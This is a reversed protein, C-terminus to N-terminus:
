AAFKTRWEDLQKKLEPHIKISLWYLGKLVGMTPRALMDDKPAPLFFLRNEKVARLKNWPFRKSLNMNKVEYPLIVIDPNAMLLREVSFQPYAQPLNAAINDGGCATIADNLFSSKGITLLPQPWICYFVKQRSKASSTIKALAKLAAEFKSSLASAKSETKSLKGVTTLNEPIDRLKQNNLLVVNFGHKKLMAQVAEQGSVLLVIDPKLQTLRELNASIFSGAVPVKALMPRANQLHNACNSCAGVLSKEAGADILLETNSPALSVISPIKKASGAAFAPPLVSLAVVLSIVTRFMTLSGDM